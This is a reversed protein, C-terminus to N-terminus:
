PRDAKAEMIVECCNVYGTQHYLVYVGDSVQYTNTLVDEPEVTSAQPICANKILDEYTFSYFWTKGIKRMGVKLLILQQNAPSNRMQIVLKGDSVKLTDRSSIGESPFMMNNKKDITTPIQRMQKQNFLYEDDKIYIKRVEKYERNIKRRLQEIDKIIIKHSSGQSDTIELYSAISDTGYDQFTIIGSYEKNGKTQVIDIYKSQEIISYKPNFVVKRQRLIDSNKVTEKGDKTQVQIWEGLEQVLIQGVIRKGSRTEIVDDIGTLVDKERVDKEIRQIDHLDYIVTQDDSQFIIQKGPIQCSIFGEVRNGNKLILKDNAQMSVTFCLVAIILVIKRKM